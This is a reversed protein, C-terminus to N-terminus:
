PIDLKRKETLILEFDKGQAIRKACSLYRGLTEAVDSTRYQTNFGITSQLAPAAPRPSRYILSFCVSNSVSFSYRTPCAFSDAFSASM